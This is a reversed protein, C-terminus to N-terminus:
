ESKLAAVIEISTARRAPGAMAAAATASVAAVIV